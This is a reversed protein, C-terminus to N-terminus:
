RFNPHDTPMHGGIVGIKPSKRQWFPSFLAVIFSFPIILHLEASTELVAITVRRQWEMFEFFALGSMWSGIASYQRSFRIRHAAFSSFASKNSRFNDELSLM